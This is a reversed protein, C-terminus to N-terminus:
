SRGSFGRYLGQADLEPALGPREARLTALGEAAMPGLLRVVQLRGEIPLTRDAIRARLWDPDEREVIRVCFLGIDERFEPSDDDEPVLGAFVRDAVVRAEELRRADM